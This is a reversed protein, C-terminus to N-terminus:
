LALGPDMDSRHPPKWSQAACQGGTKPCQGGSQWGRGSEGDPDQAAGELRGSETGGTSVLGM